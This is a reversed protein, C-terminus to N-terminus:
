DLQIRIDIIENDAWHEKIKDFNSDGLEVELCITNKKTEPNVKMEFIKAEYVEKEM